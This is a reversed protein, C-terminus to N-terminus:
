IEQMIRALNGPRIPPLDMHLSPHVSLDQGLEGPSKRWRDVPGTTLHEASSPSAGRSSFGGADVHGKLPVGQRPERGKGCACM